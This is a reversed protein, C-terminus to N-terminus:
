IKHFYKLMKSVDSEDKYSLKNTSMYKEFDKKKSDDILAVISRKNWKFPEIMNNKLVFYESKQKIKTNPRNLMPDPSGDIVVISHNKLLSLNDDEFIVEYVLKKQEQQNYIEKFTRDNIVIKDINAFDFVFTSDKNFKAMFADQRLDYNLNNILYKKEGLVLIGKNNWGEFLLPSGEVKTGVNGSVSKDVVDIKQFYGSSSFDNNDLGGVYSGINKSGTPGGQAYNVFACLMLALTFILARM